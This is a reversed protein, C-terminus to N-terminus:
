CIVIINKLSTAKVSKLAEEKENNQTGTLCEKERLRFCWLYNMLSHGTACIDAKLSSQILASRVKEAM